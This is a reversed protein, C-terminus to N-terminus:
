KCRNYLRDFSESFSIFQKAGVHGDQHLKLLKSQIAKIARKAGAKTYNKKAM